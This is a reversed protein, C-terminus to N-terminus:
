TLTVPIPRHTYLATSWSPWTISTKTELRLSTPAALREELTRKGRVARRHLYDAVLGRRQRADDVLQDGSREVVGFLVLVVPAFGVM